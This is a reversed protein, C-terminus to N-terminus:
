KCPHNQRTRVNTDFEPEHDANQERGLRMGDQHVLVLAVAVSGLFLLVLVASM